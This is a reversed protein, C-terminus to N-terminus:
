IPLRALSARRPTAVEGMEGAPTLPRRLNGLWTRRSYIIM